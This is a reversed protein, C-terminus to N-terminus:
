LVVAKNGPAWSVPGSAVLAANLNDLASKVEDSLEGDEPLDDIWRDDDIRQLFVPECLVLRLDEKTTETDYIYDEAEGVSYFYRDVTTSYIPTTEDWEVRERRAYREVDRKERCDSCVTYMKEAPKGCDDCARHTCGAYRAARENKGYFLGDRSVWGSINEVFKAAEESTDLVIDM